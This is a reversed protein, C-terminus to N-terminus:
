RMRFSLRDRTLWLAAVVAIVHVLAPVLMLAWRWDPRLDDPSALAGLETIEVAVLFVATAALVGRGAPRDMLRTAAVVAGVLVLGLLAVAVAVAWSRTANLWSRNYAYDHIPITTAIGWAAASAAGVPLMWPPAWSARRDVAARRVLAVGAVAAAVVALLVPWLGFPWISPGYFWGPSWRFAQGAREVGLLAALTGAFGLAGLRWGVRTAPARALGILAGAAVALAVGGMVSIGIGPGYDLHRVFVQDGATAKDVDGIFRVGSVALDLGAVLAAVMAAIFWRDLSRAPAPEVVPGPGAPEDAILEGATPEGVDPSAVPVSAIPVEAIEPAPPAEPAAAPTAGPGTTRVILRVTRVMGSVEDRVHVNARNTGPRPRLHLLVGHGDRELTVWDAVCDASWRLEGGGRNLVAVREPPLVEDVDVGELTIVAESVDLLPEPEPPAAAPVEPAAVPRRAVPVDGTGAFSRQPLQRREAALRGHVYGYLDNIGVLGDGDQDPAAGLMGEVVHHTFMSARNQAHADNALEGTRCSTVVFRGRGALARTLEGGKFAGSHCCDLLIVTTGAASEQIMASLDSAKVATSRLRDARTDRACLYLEGAMDLKGHGSYYVLLTDDRGASRLFDEAERLVEAMTREVVLRVGDAPFLGVRDDCLADRLLAPDNRPGELDPLNHVDNPYTSNAVLLARYGVTTV